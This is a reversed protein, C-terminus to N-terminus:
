KTHQPAAAPQAAQGGQFGGGWLATAGRASGVVAVIITIWAGAVLGYLGRLSTRLDRQGAQLSSLTQQTTEVKANIPPLARELRLRSERGLAEIRDALRVVDTAHV